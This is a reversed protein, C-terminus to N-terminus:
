KALRLNFEGEVTHMDSNKCDYHYNPKDEYLEGSFYGRVEGFFENEFTVFTISMDSCLYQHDCTNDHKKRIARENKYALASSRFEMSGEGDHSCTLPMTGEFPNKLEIVFLNAMDSNNKITTCVISLKNEGDIACNTLTYNNPDPPATGNLGYQYYEVPAGDIKVLVYLDSDVVSIQTNLLYSSKRGEKNSSELEVSVAVPNVAPKSGPATYTADMNTGNLSGNANSVPASVGNLMWQKVRFDMLRSEVPPIPTLPTLGDVGDPIPILPALEDDDQVSQDRVFGAIKLTVSQNKLLVTSSPTLSLDIFKGLTWDSFHSTQVAVTKTTTNVEGHLMANWSGDNSQTIIWLFEPPIGGLLNDNYHFQLEVPKTFTIGEPQLRGKM